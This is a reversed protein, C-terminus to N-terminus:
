ESFIKKSEGKWPHSPTFFIQLELQELIAEKAYHQKLM